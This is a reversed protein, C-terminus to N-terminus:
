EKFSFSYEYCYEQLIERANIVGTVWEDLQITKLARHLFVHTFAAAYELSEGAQSARRLERLFTEHFRRENSILLDANWTKSNTWGQYETEPICLAECTAKESAIKHISM